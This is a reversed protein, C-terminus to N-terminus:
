FHTPGLRRRTLPLSNAGASRGGEGGRRCSYWRLFPMRRGTSTSVRVNASSFSTRAKACVHFTCPTGQNNLSLKRVFAIFTCPCDIHLRLSARASFKALDDVGAQQEERATRVACTSAIRSAAPGSVMIVRMISSLMVRFCGSAGQSGGKQKTKLFLVRGAFLSEVLLGAHVGKAPPGSQHVM